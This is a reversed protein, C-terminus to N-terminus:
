AVRMMIAMTATLILANLVPVGEIGVFPIPAYFVLQALWQSDVFGPAQPGFTFPYAEPLRWSGAIVRGMGIIWWTDIGIRAHATSAFALLLPVSIWLPQRCINPHPILLEPRGKRDM